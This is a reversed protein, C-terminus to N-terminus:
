RDYARWRIVLEVPRPRSLDGYREAAWQRTAAVARHMDQPDIEWTWSYIRQDLEDLLESLARDRVVHIAELLRPRGLVRDLAAPDTVGPRTVEVGLEATVRHHVERWHGGPGGGLDILLIGGPRVVRKLETVAQEWDPILHLVHCGFAGGFSGDAFPLRTADGVLLPFPTTGGANSKLQSLMPV